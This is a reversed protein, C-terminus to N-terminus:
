RSKRPVVHAPDVCRGRRRTARPGGGEAAQQERREGADAGGRTQEGMRAPQASVDRCEDAGPQVDRPAERDRADLVEDAPHGQEHRQRDAGPQGDPQRRSRRAYADPHETV